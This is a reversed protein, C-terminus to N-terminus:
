SHLPTSLKRRLFAYVPFDVTEEISFDPFKAFLYDKLEMKNM